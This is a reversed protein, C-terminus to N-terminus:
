SAGFNLPEVASKSLSLGSSCIFQTSLLLAESRSQSLNEVCKCLQLTRKKTSITATARQRMKAEDAGMYSQMCM